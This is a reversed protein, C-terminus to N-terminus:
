PNARRAVSLSESAPPGYRHLVTLREEGEGNGNVHALNESENPSRHVLVTSLEKNIQEQSIGRAKADKYFGKGLFMAVHGKPVTKVIEGSLDRSVDSFASLLVQEQKSATKMHDPLDNPSVFRTTAGQVTAIAVFQILSTDQHWEPAGASDRPIRIELDARKAGLSVDDTDKRLCAKVAKKVCANYIANFTDNIQSYVSEDIDQPLTKVVDLGRMNERNGRNAVDKILDLTIQKLPLSAFGNALIENAYQQVQESSLCLEQFAKASQMSRMEAQEVVAGRVADARSCFTFM